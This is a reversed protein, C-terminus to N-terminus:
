RFFVHIIRTLSDNVNLTTKDKSLKMKAVEYFLPVGPTEVRTLPWPDISEYELHWKALQRGAEAFAAFDAM